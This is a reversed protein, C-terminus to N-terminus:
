NSARRGSGEPTPKGPGSARTTTPNCEPCGAQERPECGIVGGRRDFEFSCCDLLRQRLLARGRQVRSKAGSLSLGLREAVQQQTLGELDALVVADRYPEPLSHVMRRFAAKLGDIEPDNPEPDVPLAEPVEVTEKRTRYHDIIAHRAILYIWGELKAPDELADLRRQIKLFVDQRIDDATAPDSVRARIFQGLKVSFENWIQEVNPNM